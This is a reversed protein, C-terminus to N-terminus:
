KESGLNEKSLPNSTDGIFPYPTLAIKRLEGYNRIPFLIGFNFFEKFLSIRKRIGIKKKIELAPILLVKIIELPLFVPLNAFFVV